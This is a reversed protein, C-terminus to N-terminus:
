QGAQKIRMLRKVMEKFSINQTYNIVDVKPPLLGGKVLYGVGDEGGIGLVLLNDNKLSASFGIKSYGYNRFFRYIGRDLISVSAGSGLISINKLAEVNITQKIGKTKVTALSGTFSEAQGKVVVLDNITGSIIGSVRGYDFTGTLKELNISEISISSQVSPVPSLVNDIYINSIRVQGDFLDLVVEGETTLRNGSFLAKPIVGSLSGNFQPIELAEAAQGLDIDRITVALSLSREPRLINSYVIDKFRIAGGFAHIAIDDRSLITNQAVAPFAELAKLQLIGWSLNDISIKGYVDIGQFAEAQPYSLDFPLNVQIGTLSRDKESIVINMNNIDIMGQVGFRGPQGTFSVKARSEGDVALGALLPLQERFTERIFFNFAEANDLDRLTMTAKIDPSDWPGSMSGALTLRGIDTLTIESGSLSFSDDQKTYSGEATCALVRDKFNGYFKGALLEFGSAHANMSVEAREFPLPLSFSASLEAQIGEGIKTEDASAFGGDALAARATGAFLYRGDNDRAMTLATHVSGTGHMNLGIKHTFSPLMRESASQVDIDKWTLSAIMEPSRGESYAIDASVGRISDSAISLNKLQVKNKNIDAHLEGQLVIDASSIVENGEKFVTAKEAHVTLPGAKIIADKYEFSPMTVTLVSARFAHEKKDHVKFGYLQQTRLVADKARVRGSRYSVPLNARFSSLGIGGTELGDGNIQVTGGAEPSKIKGSLSLNLRVAAKLNINRLTDVASGSVSKFIEHIVIEDTELNLAMRPNKSFIGEMTGHLRLSSTQGYRVEAHKLAIGGNKIKYTGESLLAVQHGPKLSLSESIFSFGSVDANAKWRLAEKSEREIEATIEALGMLRGREETLPVLQRSLTGLDAGSIRVNAELLQLRKIDAQGTVSVKAIHGPVSASATIDVAGTTGKQQISLTIDRVQLLRDDGKLEVTGQNIQVKKIELPLTVVDGSPQSTTPHPASLTVEPRELVVEDVTRNRIGQLTFTIRAEPLFIEMDGPKGEAVALDQVIIGQGKEVHLAGISVPQHIFTTAALEALTVLRGSQIFFFLTAALVTFVAALIIIFKKM